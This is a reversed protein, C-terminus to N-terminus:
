KKIKKRIIVFLKLSSRFMVNYCTLYEQCLNTYTFIDLIHVFVVILTAVQKVKKYMIQLECM